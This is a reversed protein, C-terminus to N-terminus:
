TIQPNGTKTIQISDFFDMAFCGGGTKELRGGKQANATIKSSKGM